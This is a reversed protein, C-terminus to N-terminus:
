NKWHNIAGTIIATITVIWIFPGCLIIAAVFKWFGKTEHLNYDVFIITGFIAWVMLILISPNM